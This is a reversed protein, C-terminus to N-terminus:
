ARNGTSGLTNFRAKQEDSLSGYFSALAPQVTKGAEILAELRREMAEVRGTPTLAEYTPCNAKLRESAKTAASRLEAFAIQQEGTPQVAHGIRVIPLGAVETGRKTCLRAFDRREKKDAIANSPVVANFRAKQEDNLSQYLRDLPARVTRVAELMAQLRTEMAELRGTPVSPLENPCSAKLIDIAKSTSEKLESLTARQTESPEIVESIREIPWTTLEPANDGCVGAVPQQPDAQGTRRVGSRAAPDVYAYGGYIGYYVDEYAYPWFDDYVYPWFIYDFFDDYAYPWFVPGLWGIM